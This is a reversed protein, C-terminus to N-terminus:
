FDDNYDCDGDIDYNRDGDAYWMQILMMILLRSSKISLEFSRCTHM